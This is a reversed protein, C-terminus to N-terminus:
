AKGYKAKAEDLVAEFAEKDPTLPLKSILAHYEAAPIKKLDISKELANRLRTKSVFFCLAEYYSKKNDVSNMERMLRSFEKISVDGYKALIYEEKIRYSLYEEEEAILKEVPIEKAYFEAPYNIDEKVMNIAKESNEAELTIVTSGFDCEAREDDQATPRSVIIKWYPVQAELVDLHVTSVFAMYKSADEGPFLFAKAAPIQALAATKNEAKVIMERQNDNKELVSVRYFM